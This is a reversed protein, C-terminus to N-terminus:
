GFCYSGLAPVQRRFILDGFDKDATVIVRRDKLAMELLETDSMRPMLMAAHVCDHGLGELHSLMARSIHADLLLRM